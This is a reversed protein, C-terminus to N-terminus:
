YARKYPRGDHGWFLLSAAPQGALAREIEAADAGLEHAPAGLAVLGETDGRGTLDRAVLLVRRVGLRDRARGVAKRLNAYTASQEDGDAAAEIQDPFVLLAAGAAATALRRGLEVELSRRAVAHALFGFTALVAVAPGVTALLLKRVVRGRPASSTMPRLTGFLGNFPGTRVLSAGERGGGDSRAPPPPREGPQGAGALFDHEF